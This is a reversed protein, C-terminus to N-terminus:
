NNYIDNVNVTSVFGQALSYQQSAVNPAVTFTKVQDKQAKFYSIWNQSWKDKAVVKRNFDEWLVADIAYLSTNKITDFGWNQMLILNSDINKIQKLLTDYTNRFKKQEAPKNYFYDDIDGVTDLFVGDMGKKVIQQEVKDMVVDKYHSSSINMVYTDWQKIKMRKNNCYYYDAETVKSKHWAELEMVSVYGLVKTGSAKLEAIQQQTFAYPEIIVLDYKSLEKIVQENAEGYYIKFNKVNSLKHNVTAAKVSTTSFTIVLSFVVLISVFRNFLM